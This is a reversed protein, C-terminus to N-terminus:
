SRLRSTSRCNRPPHRAPGSRDSTASATNVTSTPKSATRVSDGSTSKETKGGSTGRRPSSSLPRCARSPRPSYRHPSPISARGEPGEPLVGQHDPQRGPGRMPCRGKGPSISPRTSWCRSRIAPGKRDRAMLCVAATFMAGASDGILALRAADVGLDSPTPLSGCPRRMATRSRPRSSTSRRSGTTSRCWPVLPETASTVAHMTTLRWTGRWCPAATFSCWSRSTARRRWAPLGSRPNTAGRGPHRHEEVKSVPDTTGRTTMCEENIIARLAMDDLRPAKQGQALASAAVFLLGLSTAVAARANM